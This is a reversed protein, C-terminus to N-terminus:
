CPRRNSGGRILVAGSVVSPTTGGTFAATEVIRLETHEDGLHTFNVDLEKISDAASLVVTYADGDPNTVDEWTGPTTGDNTRSQIEYTVAIATPAGKVEGLSVVLVGSRFDGVQLAAGSRTGAPQERLPLALTAAHIYAGINVLSPHSM